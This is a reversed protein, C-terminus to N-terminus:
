SGEAAVQWEFQTKFDKFCDDCLWHYNDATAYGVHLADPLDEAFKAACFECHDHEWGHRFRRYKKRQLLVGQLYKEQGQLRWDSM